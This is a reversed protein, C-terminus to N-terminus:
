PAREVVRIGRLALQEQVTSQYAAVACRLWQEFRNAAASTGSKGSTFLSYTKASVVGSGFPVILEGLLVLPLTLFSDGITLGGGSAAVSVCM